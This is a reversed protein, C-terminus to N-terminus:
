LQTGSTYSSGTTAFYGGVEWCGTQSLAHEVKATGRWHLTAWDQIWVPCGVSLPCLTRAGSNYASQPGQERHPDWISQISKALGPGVPVGAATLHTHMCRGLMINAPATGGKRPTTAPALTGATVKNPDGDAGKVIKKLAKIAAEM